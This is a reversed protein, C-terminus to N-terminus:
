RLFRWRSNFKLHRKKSFGNEFHRTRGWFLITKILFHCYTQPVSDKSRYLVGSGFKINKKNPEDPCQSLCVWPNQTSQNLPPLIAGPGSTRENDLSRLNAVQNDLDLTTTTPEPLLGTDEEPSPEQNAMLTSSLSMFSITLTENGGNPAKIVGGNPASIGDPGDNKAEAQLPEVELFHLCATQPSKPDPNLDWEQAQTKLLFSNDIRVVVANNEFYM